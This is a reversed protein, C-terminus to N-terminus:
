SNLLARGHQEQGPVVPTTGTMYARLSELVYSVKKTGSNDWYEGAEISVRIFCLSPDDIGGPFWVRLPESWLRKRTEPDSLIEPLGRAAVFKSNSQGTIYVVSDREAERVKDSDKMSAFWLVGQESSELVQMPRLSVSGDHALTILFLSSFEKLTQLLIRKRDENTSSELDTKM